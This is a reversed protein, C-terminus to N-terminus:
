EDDSYAEKIMRSRKAQLLKPFSFFRGSHSASTTQHVNKRRREDRPYFTLAPAQSKDTPILVTESVVVHYILAPQRADYPWDRLWSAILTINNIRL